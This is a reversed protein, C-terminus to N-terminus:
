TLILNDASIMQLIGINQLCYIDWKDVVTLKETVKKVSHIDYQM